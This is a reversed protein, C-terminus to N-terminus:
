KLIISIFISIILNMALQLTPFASPIGFAYNFIIEQGGPAGIHKAMLGVAAGARVSHM